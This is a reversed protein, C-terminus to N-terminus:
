CSSQSWNQKVTQKLPVSRAWTLVTSIFHAACLWSASSAHLHNAPWAPHAPCRSFPQLLLLTVNLYFVFLWAPSLQHWLHSKSNVSLSNTPFLVSSFSFDANSVWLPTTRQWRSESTAGIELYSSFTNIGLHVRRGEQGEKQSLHMLLLAATFIQLPSWSVLSGRKWKWPSNSSCMCTTIPISNSSVPVRRTDCTDLHEGSWGLALGWNNGAVPM